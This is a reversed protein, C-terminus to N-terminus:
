WSWTCLTIGHIDYRQPLEDKYSMRWGTVILSDRSPNLQLSVSPSPNLDVALGSLTAGATSLFSDSPFASVPEIVIEGTSPSPGILYFVSFAGYQGTGELEWDSALALQLWGVPRNL